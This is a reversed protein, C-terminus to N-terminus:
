FNSKPQSGQQGKDQKPTRQRKPIRYDRKPTRPNGFNIYQTRAFGQGAPSKAGSNGAFERFNAGGGQLKRRKPIRQGQKKKRKQAPARYGLLDLLAKAQHQAQELVMKMASQDFLDESFPNSSLLRLVLANEAHCFKLVRKRLELKRQCFM